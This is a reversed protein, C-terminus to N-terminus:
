TPAFDVGYFELFVWKKARFESLGIEAGTTAQLKFDPATAGVEVAMAPGAGVVVSMVALATGLLTGCFMRKGPIEM